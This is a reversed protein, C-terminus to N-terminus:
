MSSSSIMSGRPSLTPAKLAGGENRKEELQDLLQGMLPALTRMAEPRSLSLTAWKVIQTLLEKEGMPKAEPARVRKVEPEPIHVVELVPISDMEPVPTPRVESVVEPVVEPVLTPVSKEIVREPSMPAAFQEPSLPDPLSSPPPAPADLVSLSVHPLTPVPEEVVREPPRPASFQGSSLPDPLSSPPAGFANPADPVPPSVHQFSVAMEPEVSAMTIGATVPALTASVSVPTPTATAYSHVQPPLAQPFQVQPSQVQQPFQVQPPQIQQPPQAQQPPQVQQPFQVQPPQIQPPQTQPFPTEAPASQAITSPPMLDAIDADPFRRPICEDDLLRGIRAFVEARSFPKKMFDDAGINIGFFQATAQENGSMMIVPIHKTNANKRLARLAAFGNIGPMVIDLFILEPKDTLAHQLGEKADMAEIVICGSSELFRKLIVIVTHSDDIVLVRTGARPNVRHLERREPPRTDEGSLALDDAATHGFITRFKDFLGV